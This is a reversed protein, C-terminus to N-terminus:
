STIKLKPYQSPRVQLIIKELKPKAQSIRSMTYTQHYQDSKNSEQILNYRVIYTHDKVQFADNLEHMRIRERENSEIRRVNRDRTTMNTRRRRGGTSSSTVAELKTGGGSVGGTVGVSVGVGCEDLSSCDSVESTYDSMTHIALM